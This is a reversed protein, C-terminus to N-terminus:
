QPTDCNRIALVDIAGNASRLAPKQLPAVDSWELPRTKQLREGCQHALVGVLEGHDVGRIASIRDALHGAVRADRGGLEFEECSEYGFHLARRNRHAAVGDIKRNALRKANDGPDNWEVM